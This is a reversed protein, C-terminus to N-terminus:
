QIGGGYGAQSLPRSWAGDVLRALEHDALHGFHVAVLGLVVWVGVRRLAVWIM